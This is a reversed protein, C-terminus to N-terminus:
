LLLDPEEIAISGSGLEDSPDSDDSLGPYEGERAPCRSRFFHLTAIFTM